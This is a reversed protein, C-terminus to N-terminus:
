WAGGSWGTMEPWGRGRGDTAAVPQGRDGVAAGGAADRDDAGRGRLPLHGRQGAFVWAPGILSFLVGGIVPGIVRLREDAGLEAFDSGAPGGQGGPGPPHGLLRARVHRERRGRVAGHGGAARALSPPAAVVLWASRSCSSSSRSCSSSGSGTSRTRWCAARGHAPGPHDSSPSSSSASSRARTRSTTPTPASSSTRCGPASTRHSPAWSSSASRGTGCRPGPPAPEPPASSDGDVVADEIEEISIGNDDGGAEAGPGGPTGELKRGDPVSRPRAAITPLPPCLLGLGTIVPSDRDRKVTRRPEGEGYSARRRWWETAYPAPLLYFAPNTYVAVCGAAKTGRLPWRLCREVQRPPDGEDGGFPLIIQIAFSFAVIVMSRVLAARATSTLPGRSPGGLHHVQCEVLEDASLPEPSVNGSVLTRRRRRSLIPSASSPLM